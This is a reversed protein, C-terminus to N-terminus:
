SDAVKAARIRDRILRSRADALEHAETVNYVRNAIQTKEAIVAAEELAATRGADYAARKTRTVAASEGGWEALYPYEAIAQASCESM